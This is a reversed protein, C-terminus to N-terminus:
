IGDDIFALLARVKILECERREERRREFTGVRDGTTEQRPGSARPDDCPFAEREGVPNHHLYLQFPYSVDHRLRSHESQGEPYHRPIRGLYELVAGASMLQRLPSLLYMDDLDEPQLSAQVM